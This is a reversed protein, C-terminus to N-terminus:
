TGHMYGVRLYITADYLRSTYRARSCLLMYEYHIENKKKEIRAFLFAFSFTSFNLLLGLVCLWRMMPFHANKRLFAGVFFCIYTFYSNTYHERALPLCAFLISQCPKSEVQTNQYLEEKRVEDREEYM